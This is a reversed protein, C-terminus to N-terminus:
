SQKHKQLEDMGNQDVMFNKNPYRAKLANELELRTKGKAMFEKTSLNYAFLEEGNVEIDINISEPLSSKIQEVEERVRIHHSHWGVLYGVFLMLIYALAEM